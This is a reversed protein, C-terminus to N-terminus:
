WRRATPSNWSTLRAPRTGPRTDARRSRRACAAPRPLQQRRARGQDTGQRQIGGSRGGRRPCLFSDHKEATIGTMPQFLHTYHTAGHEIAWDKMAVAVTDAISPDLPAGEKVTKQLSKFVPKPLRQRQEEENFVNAGYLDKAHTTKFDYLNLKHQATAISQIAAYRPNLAM